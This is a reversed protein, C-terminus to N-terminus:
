DLKKYYMRFESIRRVIVLPLKYADNYIYINDNIMLKWVLIFNNIEKKNKDFIFNKM